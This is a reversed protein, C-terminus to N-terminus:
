AHSGAISHSTSDHAHDTDALHARMAPLLRALSRADDGVEGGTQSSAVGGAREKTTAEEKM